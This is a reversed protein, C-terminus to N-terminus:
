STKMYDPLEPRKMKKVNESFSAEVKKRLAELSMEDGYKEKLIKELEIKTVEGNKSLQGEITTTWGGESITHSVSNMHFFTKPGLEPNKGTQGYVKPLYALRFMDGPAIGGCGDIEMSLTLPLAMDSSLGSVMRSLFNDQLYFQMTRLFHKRLKGSKDYPYRYIEDINDEFGVWSIMNLKTIQEDINGEVSGLRHSRSLVEEYKNTFAELAKTSPNATVKSISDDIAHSWRSASGTLGTSRIEAIGEGANCPLGVGFTSSFGKGAAAYAVNLESHNDRDKFFNAIEEAQKTEKDQLAGFVHEFIVDENDTNDLRTNGYGAVVAMKNPVGASLQLSGEHILSNFGYNEFIYSFKPDKKQETDKGDKIKEDKIRVGFRQTIGEGMSLQGVEFNWMEFGSNLRNVLSLMASQISAGPSSFASKVESLNFLINRIYGSGEGGDGWNTGVQFKILTSKNVERALQKHPTAADAATQDPDTPHMAPDYQGPLIFIAPDYTMLYESNPITISVNKEDLSRFEAIREGTSGDVFPSYYSILNDELWGLTVWIDNTFNRARHLAMTATEGTGLDTIYESITDFWGGEEKEKEGGAWLEISEEGERPTVIAFVCQDDSSLVQTATVSVLKDVFYKSLIEIDLWKMREAISQKPGSKIHETVNKVDLSKELDKIMDQYDYADVPLIETNTDKPQEIENAFINSGKGLIDTKCDFGGDERQTWTFNIVTGVLGAWDGYTNRSLDEWITQSGVKGEEEKLLNKFITPNLVLTEGDKKVIEPIKNIAASDDSRVWGWDLIVYRGISLFSGQQFKELQELSWCTWSVEAKRTAGGYSEYSVTVNKIGPKGSGFNMGKEKVGPQLDYMAEATPVEGELSKFYDTAGDKVSDAGVVGGVSLSFMGYIIDTRKSGPSILRVFPTKSAQAEYSLKYEKNRAVEDTISKYTHKDRM